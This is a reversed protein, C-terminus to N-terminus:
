INNNKINIAKSYIIILISLIVLVMMFIPAMSISLLMSFGSFFRTMYPTMSIGINGASFLITLLVGSGLKYVTSGTSILLPFIASYGLGIIVIIVLDLNRSGSFYISVASLVAISSLIFVLYYAKIKGSLIGTIVRGVLVGGWFLSIILAADGISYSRETRFFTPAWTAIVTESIAYVGLMVATLVFLINRRKDTFVEKFSIRQDHKLSLYGIKRTITLYLIIIIIILFILIYYFVQWDMGRAVLSSSIYPATFAGIPYFSLAVSTLRDKNKIRSRVINNNAQLWVVGLIYGSIFYLAYFAYLNSTRSLAFTVPILVTFSAVLLTLSSFKRNYLISTLQGIVSGITFFTFVLNFDGAKIGTSASIDLLIPSLALFFM